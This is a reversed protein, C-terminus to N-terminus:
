AGPADPQGGRGFVSPISPLGPLWSPSSSPTPIGCFGDGSSKEKNGVSDVTKAAMTGDSAPMQEVGSSATETVDKQGDDRRYLMNIPNLWGLGGGVNNVGQQSGPTLSESGEGAESTYSLAPNAHAESRFMGAKLSNYATTILPVSDLEMEHAVTLPLVEGDMLNFYREQVEKIIAEVLFREHSVNRRSRAAMPRFTRHTDSETEALHLRIAYELMEDGGSIWAPLLAPLNDKIATTGVEISSINELATREWRIISSDEFDYKIRYWAKESLLVVREQEQGWKNISIVVWGVVGGEERPVLQSRCEELADMCEETDASQKAMEPARASVKGLLLDISDQRYGDLFNNIYYRTVSNVGDNLLGGITREGTRTFDGKLAETGTYQLSLYDGNDAWLLKHSRLRDQSEELNPLHFSEKLIQDLSARAIFSQALNTRDLSDLCNVRIVGTQRSTVIEDKGQAAHATEALFEKVGELLISLNEYQMTGCHKHFDFHYYSVGEIRADTTVASEFRAQLEEEIGRDDLMDLCKVKGYKSCVQEFHKNYSLLSEEKGGLVPTPKYKMGELGPFNQSWIIPVSGRIQVFSCLSGEFSLIQETEVYNAVQGDEDAGRTRYRVGARLQSRRSILTIGVDSHAEYELNCIGICGRILPLIWGHAQCEILLDVMSQNYWFQGQARKWLPTAAEVKQNWAQQM